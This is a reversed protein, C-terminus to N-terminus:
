KRVRRYRTEAAQCKERWKLWRCWSIRTKPWFSYNEEIIVEGKGGRENLLHHIAVTRAEISEKTEHYFLGSLPALCIKEKFDYAIMCSLIQSYQDDAINLSFVM